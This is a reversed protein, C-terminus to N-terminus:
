DLWFNAEGPILDRPLLAMFPLWKLSSCITPTILLCLSSNGHLVEHRNADTCSHEVVPFRLVTTQFHAIFGVARWTSSSIRVASSSRACCARSRLALPPAPLHYARPRLSFRHTDHPFFCSYRALAQPSIPICGPAATRRFSRFSRPNRVRSALKALRADRNPVAPQVNEQGHTLGRHFARHRQRSQSLYKLSVLIFGACDLREAARTLARMVSWSM